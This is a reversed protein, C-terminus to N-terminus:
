SMVRYCTNCLSPHSSVRGGIRMLRASLAPNEQCEISNSAIDTIINYLDYLSQPSRSIVEQEITERIQSPVNYETYISSLSSSLHGDFTVQQMSRLRDVEVSASDFAHRAAESVWDGFGESGGRYSFRYVNDVSIAGNTCVLRHVYSSLTVPSAMAYSNEVTVGVRVPDGVNLGVDYEIDESVISYRTNLLDHSVHSVNLNDGAIQRIEQLIPENSIPTAEGKSFMQVIGNNVFMTMQAIGKASMWYNVHPLMLSHPTKRIYANPIGVMQSLRLYSDSTLPYLSDGLAFKVSGSDFVFENRESRPDFTVSEYQETSRFVDRLDQISMEKVVSM